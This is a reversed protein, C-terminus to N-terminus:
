SAAAVEDRALPRRMVSSVITYAQAWADRVDATFADGLVDDLAWLLADGVSDFHRDEVGYNMHRKALAALAPLLSDINDLAHVVVSLSQALKKKQAAMDVGAFLQAAGHDIEFLHIYFHTTLADANDAIAPWSSRVLLIQDPTM